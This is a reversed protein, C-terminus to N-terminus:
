YTTWGIVVSCRRLSMKQVVAPIGTKCKEMASDDWEGSDFAYFSINIRRLTDEKWALDVLRAICDMANEVSISYEHISFCVNKVNQCADFLHYLGDCEM